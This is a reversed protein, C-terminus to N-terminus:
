EAVALSNKIKDFFDEVVINFTLFQAFLAEAVGDAIGVPIYTKPRVEVFWFHLLKPM